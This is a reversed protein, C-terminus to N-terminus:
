ANTKACNRAKYRASYRLFMYVAFGLSLLSGVATAIGILAVHTEDLFLGITGGLMLPFGLLAFLMGGVENLDMWAESSEFTHSTRIGYFANPPVKGFIMPLCILTTLLGSCILTIALALM